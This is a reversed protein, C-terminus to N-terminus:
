HSSTLYVIVGVILVILVAVSLGIVAARVNSQYGPVADPHAKRLEAASEHEESVVGIGVAELPAFVEPPWLKRATPEDRSRGMGVTRGQGDLLLMRWCPLTASYRPSRAEYPWTVLCVTTVADTQGTSPLAFNREQACRAASPGRGANPHRRRGVSMRWSCRIKRELLTGKGQLPAPMIEATQDLGVESIGEHRSVVTM